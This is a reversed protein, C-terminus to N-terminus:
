CPKVGVHTCGAMYGVVASRDGSATASTDYSIVGAGHHGGLSAWSLLTMVPGGGCAEARGSSLVKEVELPDGTEFAKMFVSDMESAEEIPHYHSLDSSAVFLLGDEDGAAARIASALRSCFGADARGQVIPVIRAGPWRVQVFPIQVEEAHELAHARPEFGFGAEVLRRVMAPAIEALGLPTRYGEGLYVSAGEVPYRHCPAVIIVTRIGDPASAFAAGATRGSYVYGAHPSVIGSIGQDPARRSESLYGEIERRLLDPDKPYFMGAVAPRRESM